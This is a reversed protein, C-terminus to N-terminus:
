LWVVSTSLVAQEGDEKSTIRRVVYDDHIGEEYSYRDGHHKMWKHLFKDARQSSLMQTNDPDDSFRIITVSMGLREINKFKVFGWLTTAMEENPFINSIPAVRTEGLADQYQCILGILKKMNKM